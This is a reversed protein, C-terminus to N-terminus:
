LKLGFALDGADGIGPVIYSNTNLEDDIVAVWIDTNEPLHKQIYDIAQKSAIVSVTHIKAPVGNRQIAEYVLSMSQGTALMPDAIVLTKGTLDPSALYEVHVKIEGGEKEERYASIFANEAHDFFNLLGTHLTLGARLISAIVPQHKLQNVVATGLPTQVHTEKYELKKSVEYAMIEGMREMNKRFRLPDQQIDKNRIEAIFQNLISNSKSLEHVMLRFQTFATRIRKTCLDCFVAVFLCSNM